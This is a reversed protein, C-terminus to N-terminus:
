GIQHYHPQWREMWRDVAEGDDALWRAPTARAIADAEHTGSDAFAQELHRRVAEAGDATTIDFQCRLDPDRLWAALLHAPLRYPNGVAMVAAVREPDRVATSFPHHARPGPRTHPYRDHGHLQVRRGDLYVVEVGRTLAFHLAERATDIIPEGADNLSTNGLVPVGTRAAFLNLVQYLRPADAATITQLRASMDLHAVAPILPRRMRLIRATLLMYPSPRTQEFWHQVQEALIIPAVPRWWQRRKLRNLRDKSEARTPDALLSRHGLARPGIEAAGEFWVIPGAQLDDVVRAPDFKGVNTIHDAFERLAEDTDRDVRGLYAGPFRFTFGPLRHHFAALGLGLAQGSDNVCPPALLGKFGYKDLLHTNTPCNLAFGGALALHTQTPDLDHDDLMREVTREMVLTCVGNILKMVASIIAERPVFRPDLHLEGATAARQVAATAADLVAATAARVNRTDFRHGALLTRPDLDIATETATALAMLTGEQMGTRLAAEFYLNAPSEISEVSIKGGRGVGGAYWHQAVHQELVWDPAGDVALGLIQGERLLHTNMLMASYLHAITHVPLDQETFAYDEQPVTALGPTGWVENMGALTFGEARLLGDVLDRLDDLTLASIGHHKMGTIRELEWHRQVTVRGDALRFLTMNNDHRLWMGLAGAVGPPSFYTSLYHGDRM